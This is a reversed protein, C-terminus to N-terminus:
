CNEYGVVCSIPAKDFETTPALRIGPIDEFWFV